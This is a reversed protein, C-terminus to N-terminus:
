GMRRFAAVCTFAPTINEKMDIAGAMILEKLDGDASTIKSCAISGEAWWKKMIYHKQQYNLEPVEYKSMWKNFFKENYYFRIKKRIDSSSTRPRFIRKKAM